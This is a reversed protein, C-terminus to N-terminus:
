TLFFLNATLLSYLALSNICPEVRSNYDYCLLRCLCNLCLHDHTHALLVKNELVPPLDLKAGPGYDISELTSLVM